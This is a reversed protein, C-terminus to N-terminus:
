PLDAYIGDLLTEESVSKKRWIQQQTQSEEFVLARDTVKALRELRLSVEAEPLKFIQGPSGPESCVARFSVSKEEAYKPNGRWFEDLCYAFLEDSITAKPDHDFSYITERHQNADTREGAIRLLGLEVLPCDLSDEAIEGKRGRSPVYTNVFVRLGDALTRRSIKEKDKPLSKELFALLESETFEPRHWYNLTKEWHFLPRLSHTSIKWHLLWLTEPRELYQDWGDHGLIARGFDTVQHGKGERDEIVQAAEAWFRASRVMNKGIGLIVMAADEDEFLAPNTEIECVVKPLWAYRCVFTEHGTFRPQAIKAQIVIKPHPSPTSVSLALTAFISLFTL